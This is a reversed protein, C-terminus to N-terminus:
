KRRVCAISHQFRDRRPSLLCSSNKQVDVKGEERVGERCKDGSKKHERADTPNSVGDDCWAARNGFVVRANAALVALFWVGGGGKGKDSGGLMAKNM